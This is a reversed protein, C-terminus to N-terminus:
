RIDVSDQEDENSYTLTVDLLQEDNHLELEKSEAVYDEDFVDHYESGKLDAHMRDSVEDGEKVNEKGENILEFFKSPPLNM